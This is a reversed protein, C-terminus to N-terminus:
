SGRGGEPPDLGAGLELLESQHLEMAVLADHHANLATHQSRLSQLELRSEAYKEGLKRM